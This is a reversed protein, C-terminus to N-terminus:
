TAPVIITPILSQDVNPILQTDLGTFTLTHGILDSEATGTGGDLASLEFQGNLGAAFYKGTRTKILIAVPQTLVSEIFTRNEPTLDSLTLTFTQTLFAVGNKTDKTLTEKLGSTSKLMGVEVFCKGTLFGIDSIVESTQTYVPTGATGSAPALDAFSTIYLKELGAIVGATGCARPLAVISTCAM